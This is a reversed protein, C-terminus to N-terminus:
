DSSAAFIDLLLSVVGFIMLLSGAAIGLDGCVGLHAIGLLIYSAGKLYLFNFKGFIAIGTCLGIELVAFLICFICWVLISINVYFGINASVWKPEIGGRIKWSGEAEVLYYVDAAFAIILCCATLVRVILIAIGPIQIGM